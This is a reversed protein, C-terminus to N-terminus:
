SLRSPRSVAQFKTLRWHSWAVLQVTDTKVHVVLREVGSMSVHLLHLSTLRERVKCIVLIYSTLIKFITM